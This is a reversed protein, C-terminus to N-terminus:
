IYHTEDQQSVTRITHICAYIVTLIYPLITFNLTHIYINKTIYYMYADILVMRTTGCISIGKWLYKLFFNLEKVVKEVIFFFFEFHVFFEIENCESEIRWIGGFVPLRIPRPLKDLIKKRVCVNVWTHTCACVRVVFANTVRKDGFVVINVSLPAWVCWRQM